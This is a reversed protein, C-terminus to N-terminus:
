AAVARPQYETQRLMVAWAICATKNALAVAVVLPPRRRCIGIVWPDAKTAKSGFVAEAYRNEVEIYARIEPALASPDRLVENWNAARLWACPDM